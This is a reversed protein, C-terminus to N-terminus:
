RSVPRDTRSYESWSGPYLRANAFGTRELTLLTHCATVGSGCYAIVDVGDAVGADQYSRRIEDRDVLRGDSGVNDRCPLNVAGPIHGARPDVPEYEGRFRDGNRADLVVAGDATVDDINALRDTPWPTPTFTARDVVSEATELRDRYAAMGGDLVAARRGIVRLLIM